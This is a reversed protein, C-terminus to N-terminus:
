DEIVAALRVLQSLDFTTSCRPVTV